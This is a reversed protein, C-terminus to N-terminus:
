HGPLKRIEMVGAMRSYYFYNSDNGKLWDISKRSARPVFCVLQTDSGICQAAKSNPQPWLMQKWFAARADASLPHLTDHSDDGHSTLDFTARDDTRPRVTWVPDGQIETSSHGFVGGFVGTLASTVAGTVADHAHAAGLGVFLALAVIAKKM